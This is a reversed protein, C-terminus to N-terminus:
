ITPVFSSVTIVNVTCHKNVEKAIVVYTLRRGFGIVFKKLLKGRGM